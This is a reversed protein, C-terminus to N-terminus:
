PPAERLARALALWREPPLEEARARPEIGARALARLLAEPSAAAERLANALTKRRKGFARRAVAEVAELEGPALPPAALPTMRLFTSRVRPAPYFCGPPLELRPEVRVALRHLVALSGYDRSGPRALLRRAVERQLMVSWDALRHRLDLLRRLVPASISYPLNAVVRVRRGLAAVLGALDCRLADAHLLEVNAPLGGEARLARVIGADVELTAVRAARRALARTLVGLGTGIELVGDAPEVGALEVLRSALAPDVLFNQGRARQARLGHRALFARVEAGSVRAGSVEAGTVGAGSV